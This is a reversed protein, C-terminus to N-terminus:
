RQRRPRSGCGRPSGREARGPRRSAVVGDGRSKREAHEREWFPLTQIRSTAAVRRCVAFAWYTVGPELTDPLNDRKSVREASAPLNSYVVVREEPKCQYRLEDARVAAAIELDPERETM